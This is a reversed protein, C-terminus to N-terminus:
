WHHLFIRDFEFRTPRPEFGLQWTMLCQFEVTTKVPLSQPKKAFRLMGTSNVLRQWSFVATVSYVESSECTNNEAVGLITQGLSHAFSTTKGHHEYMPGTDLGTLSKVRFFNQLFFHEEFMSISVVDFAWTIWLSSRMENAYSSFFSFSVVCSIIEFLLCPYWCAPIM